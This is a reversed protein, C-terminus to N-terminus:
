PAITLDIVKLLSPGAAYVFQVAAADSTITGVANKGADASIFLTVQVGVWRGSCCDKRNWLTLNRISNYDYGSLNIGLFDNPVGKSHFITLLDQDLINVTSSGPWLSSAYIDNRNLNIIGDNDNKLELKSLQLYPEPSSNKMALLLFPTNSLQLSGDTSVINLYRSKLPYLPGFGRSAFVETTMTKFAFVGNAFDLYYLQGNSLDIYSVTAPIIDYAIIGTSSPIDDPRTGVAVKSRNFTTGSADTLIGNGNAYIFTIDSLDLPITAMSRGMLTSLTVQVGIWRFGYGDKRNDIKVSTITSPDIDSNTANSLAGTTLKIGLFNNRAYASHFMSQATAQGDIVKEKGNGDSTSSCYLSSQSITLKGQANSITIESVHLYYEPASGGRM